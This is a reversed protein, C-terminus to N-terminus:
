KALQVRGIYADAMFYLVKNKRDLTCNASRVRTRVIGLYKGQASVIVIGGEKGGLYGIFLTGDDGVTFGDPGGRKGVAELDFFDKHTASTSGDAKRSFVVIKRGNTVYLKSGDPSMGIGNPRLKDSVLSVTGDSQLRYVGTFPIERLASKYNGKLGWPPDTFYLDGNPGYVLDNPSNFRKGDYATALRTFSGDDERRSICRDGHQCLVIKGGSDLTLGNSGPEPSDSKDGTFGSPKIYESIGDKESWRYAINRPVDSFVVAQQAPVWVPGEAWDFGEALKEVKTGPAIIKDLAPDAREISGGSPYPAEFGKVNFDQAFAAFALFTCVTTWLQKM